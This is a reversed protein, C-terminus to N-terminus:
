GAGNGSHRLKAERGPNITREGGRCKLQIGGKTLVLFWLILRLLPKDKTPKYFPFLQPLSKSTHLMTLAIVGEVEVVLTTHMCSEDKAYISRETKFFM